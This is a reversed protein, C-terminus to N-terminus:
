EIFYPTFNIAIRHLSYPSFCSVVVKDVHKGVLWIENIERPAENENSIWYAYFSCKYWKIEIAQIWNTQASRSLFTLTRTWVFIFLFFSMSVSVSILCSYAFNAADYKDLISHFSLHLFCLYLSQIYENLRQHGTIRSPRIGNKFDWGNRIGRINGRGHNGLKLM